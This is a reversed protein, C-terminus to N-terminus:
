GKAKADPFGYSPPNTNGLLWRGIAPWKYEVLRAVFYYIASAGATIVTLMFGTDANWGVKAMWAVLVGVVLPAYTRVLSTWLERPNPIFQRILRMLM